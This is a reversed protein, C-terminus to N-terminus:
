LCTTDKTTVDTRVEVGQVVTAQAGLLSSDAPAAQMEFLVSACLSDDAPSGLATPDVITLGPTSNGFCGSDTADVYRVGGSSTRILEANKLTRARRCTMGSVTVTMANATNADSTTVVGLNVRETAGAGAYKTWGTFPQNLVLDLAYQASAEAEGRLQENNVVQTHRTSMRIVSLAVLTLMLLMIMGILLVAGRRPRRASAPHPRFAETRM